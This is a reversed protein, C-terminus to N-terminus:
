EDKNPENFKVRYGFENLGDEPLDEIEVDTKEFGRDTMVKDILTLATELSEDDAVTVLAPTEKALDGEAAKVGEISTDLALYVYVGDQKKCARVLMEGETVNENESLLAYGLTTRRVTKYYEDVQEQTPAATPEETATQEAWADEEAQAPQEDAKTESGGEGQDPTFRVRYGFGNSAGVKLQGIERDTKVLGRDTMVKDILTLATKLSEDDAVTVLAPTDKALAGEAAKVGETSADLALYVYVGDDKKYARVLTEGDIARDNAAPLAYSLTTRRITNYYEDLKTEDTATQETEAQEEDADKPDLWKAYVKLKGRKTAVTEVFRNEFEADAFWGGFAFGERTPNDPMVISEGVKVKVPKIETGGNTNFVIKCKGLKSLIIILIILLVIGALALLYFWPNLFLSPKANGMVAFAGLNDAVFTLKKGDLSYSLASANAENNEVFYYYCASGKGNLTSIYEAINEYQDVNKFLRLDINFKELGWKNAKAYADFYRDLDVTIEYHVRKGDVETKSKWLESYKYVEVDIYYAVSGKGGNDNLAAKQANYRKASSMTVEYVRLEGRSPFVGIENGDDDKAVITVIGDKTSITPKDAYTSDDIQNEDFFDEFAKKENSYEKLVGQSANEFFPNLATIATATDQKQQEVNGPKEGREIAYFDQLMDYAREVDNRRVVNMDAIAKNKLDNVAKVSADYDSNDYTLADLQTEFTSKIGEVLDVGERDYYGVVKEPSGDPNSDNASLLYNRRETVAAAASAKKAQYSAQKTTYADLLAKDEAIRSIFPASNYNLRNEETLKIKNLTLAMIKSMNNWDAAFYDAEDYASVYEGYANAVDAVNQMTTLYNEDTKALDYLYDFNDGDDIKLVAERNNQYIEDATASDAYVLAVQSLACAAVMMVALMVLLKKVSKM